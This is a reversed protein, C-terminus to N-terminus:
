FNRQLDTYASFQTRKMYRMLRECMQNVHSKGQPLSWGGQTFQSNVLIRYDDAIFVMIERDEKGVSIDKSLIQFVEPAEPHRFILLQSAKLFQEIMVMNQSLTYPTQVKVFRLSHVYRFIIIWPILLPVIAILGKGPKDTDLISAIVLAAVLVFFVIWFIIPAIIKRRMPYRFHQKIFSLDAVIQKEWEAGSINAEQLRKM